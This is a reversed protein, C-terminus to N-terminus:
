FTYGVGLLFETQNASGKDKVLPSDAADGILRTYALTGTLMWNESFMWVADMGIAVSKFGADADFRQFSSAAADYDDSLVNCYGLNMASVAAFEDSMENRFEPGLLCHSSTYSTLNAFFDYVDLTGKSDIQRMSTNNLAKEANKWDEKGAYHAGIARSM